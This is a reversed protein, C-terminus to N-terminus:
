LRKGPKHKNVVTNSVSTSNPESQASDLTYRDRVFTFLAGQRGSIGEQEIHSRETAEIREFNNRALTNAELELMSFYEQENKHLYMPVLMQEVALTIDPFKAEPSELLREFLERKELEYWKNIEAHREIALEALERRRPSGSARLDIALTSYHEIYRVVIEFESTAYDRVVAGLATQQFFDLELFVKDNNIYYPIIAPGNSKSVFLDHLQKGYLIGCEEIISIAADGVCRDLKKLAEIVIGRNLGSEEKLIIKKIYEVVKDRPEKANIRKKYIALLAFKCISELYCNNSKLQNTVGFIPLLNQPNNSFIRIIRGPFFNPMKGPILLEAMMNSYDDEPTNGPRQERSSGPKKKDKAHIKMYEQKFKNKLHEKIKNVLGSDAFIDEICGKINAKPVSHDVQFAKFDSSLELSIECVAMERDKFKEKRYKDSVLHNFKYEPQSGNKARLVLWDVSDQSTFKGLHEELNYNLKIDEPANDSIYEKIGHFVRYIEDALLRANQDVNIKKPPM